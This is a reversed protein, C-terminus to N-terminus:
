KYTSLKNKQQFPLASVTHFTTRSDMFLLGPTWSCPLDRIIFMTKNITM